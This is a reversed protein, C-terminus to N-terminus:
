EFLDVQIRMCEPKHMKSEVPSENKTQVVPEETFLTFSNLGIIIENILDIFQWQNVHKISGLAM